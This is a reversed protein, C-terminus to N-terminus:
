SYHPQIAQSPLRPIFSLLRASYGPSIFLRFDLLRCAKNKVQAIKWALLYLLDLIQLFLTLKKSGTVTATTGVTSDIYYNPVNGCAGQPTRPHRWFRRTWDRPQSRYPM